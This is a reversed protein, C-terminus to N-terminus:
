NEKNTRIQNRAIWLCVGALILLTLGCLLSVVAAPLLPTLAQYLSWILFALAFFLIFGALSVFVLSTGLTVVGKRLSRSEAELLELLSIVFDSLARLM